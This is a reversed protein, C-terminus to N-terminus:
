NVVSGSKILQEEPKECLIRNNGTEPCKKILGLNNRQFNLRAFEHM